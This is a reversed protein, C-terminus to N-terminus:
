VQLATVETQYSVQDGSITRGIILFRGLSNGSREVADVTFGKVLLPDYGPITISLDRTKSRFRKLMRRALPMAIDIPLEGFNVSELRETSRTALDESFVIIQTTQPAVDNLAIDGPRVDSRDKVVVDALGDYEYESYRVQDGRLPEFTEREVRILQDGFVSLGTRLNGSRQATMYDQDFDAGLQQNVSDRVIRGRLELERSQLYSMRPKFPHVAYAFAERESNMEVFTPVETNVDLIKSSISKTRLNLQDRSNYTYREESESVTGTMDFSSKSERVLESRLVVFPHSTRRYERYERTLTNSITGNVGPSYTIKTEIRQTVFDYSRRNETISVILGDIDKPQDNEGLVQYHDVDVKKPLPFGAPAVLTMDRITIVNGTVYVATQFMGFFGAIATWLSQGMPCDIRRLPFDPLDTEYSDFGMETVLIRQFVDYLSMQPIGIPQPVYSVGNEDRIPEIDNLDVTESSSDFLILGRTPTQNLKRVIASTASITVRDTPANNAWGTQKRIGTLEGNQILWEMSSNDWVGNNIEGLGFDILSQSDFLDKDAPHVLSVQIDGGAIQASESYSWDAIPVDNGNVRFRPRRRINRPVALSLRIDIQLDLTFEDSQVSFLVADNALLEGTLTDSLLITKVPEGTVLLEGVALEVPYGGVPEGTLQAEGIALGGDLGITVSANAECELMGTAFAIPTSDNQQEIIPFM